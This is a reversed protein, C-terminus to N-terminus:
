LCEEFIATVADIDDFSTGGAPLLFRLRTPNNGAMFTIMGAEFLRHILDLVKERDGGYPTCGIMMGAGYPGSLLKPKREEIEKLNDVLQKRLQMNRGNIGFFGDNLLNNLIALSCRIAGTSSTFTQALLGPRPKLASTFLTACVQSLKGMCVVDVHEELGFHQFAFPHTTRGFSQVEDVLLPVNAEKLLKILSMFFEKTGPYFGNEGQILEMCMAAYQGPHRALYTEVTKTARKVSKEPDKWDYFPIYDVHLHTPLGERYHPKDTISSLTITRGMFCGEFALIRSAPHRNQFLLKLGNENAMAGSTTLMCHDMGSAKLITEILEVSDRNQMLNGQMPINQLAADLAAEILAPHGHGFHVGIGSVCDYKVSGDALEVLAGNGAGSGILPFFLKQGRYEGMAEIVEEYSQVLEATPPAVKTLKQSYKEMQHLIKAKAKVIEPCETITDAILTM